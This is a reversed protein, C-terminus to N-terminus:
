RKSALPDQREPAGLDQHVWSSARDDLLPKIRSPRSGRAGSIHHSFLTRRGPQKALLTVATKDVILAHSWHGNAGDVTMAMRDLVLKTGVVQYVAQLTRGQGLWKRAEVEQLPGQNLSGHPRRAVAEVKNNRDAHSMVWRKGSKNARDRELLKNAVNALADIHPFEDALQGVRTNALLKRLARALDAGKTTPAREMLTAVTAMGTLEAASPQATWALSVTPLALYLCWGTAIKRM